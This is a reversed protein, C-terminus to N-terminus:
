HLKRINGSRLLFDLCEEVRTAPINFRSAFKATDFEGNNAKIHSFIEQRLIEDSLGELKKIRKAYEDRKRECEILIRANTESSLALERYKRELVSQREQIDLLASATASDQVSINEKMKSIIPSIAPKLSDPHLEFCSSAIALADILLSLAELRRAYKDPGLSYTISVSSDLFALRYFHHQKDSIDLSESKELELKTKDCLIKDFGSDSFRSKLRQMQEKCRGSLYITETDM